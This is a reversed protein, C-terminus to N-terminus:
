AFAAPRAACYASAEALSIDGLMALSLQDAVLPALKFGHGSCASVAYSRAGLAEVIFAEDTTVTYYCAKAELPAYREPARFGEAFLVRVREIDAATPIRDGDPDGERSFRHDGVKFRTGCRPPMTYLGGEAGRTVIVPARSWAEMLEAPPALYLVAQRSPTARGRLSPALREIWPGSTLALLDAEYVEGGALARARDPDIETVEAGTVLRVGMAGLHVVLDTLIRIPFLMGAGQTAVVRQLDRTEIMPFRSEIEEAPVYRWPVGMENLAALTLDHWGDDHRLFYTAGIAAYHSRGLEDWLAEWLEFAAPMLRAYGELRGYAHRIIRHEDYSSGRPNPLPGQELLTVKLGRRALRWATILGYIGGGVVLATEASM